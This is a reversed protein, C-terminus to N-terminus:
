RLITHTKTKVGNTGEQVASPTHPPPEWVNPIPAPTSAFSVRSMIILSSFESATNRVLCMSRWAHVRIEYTVNIQIAELKDSM